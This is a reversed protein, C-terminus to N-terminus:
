PRGGGEAHIRAEFLSVEGFLTAYRGHRRVEGFGADHLMSPILGLANARTRDRGDLTRPLEFALRLLINSSRDFDALYLSGGRRLVRRIERLAAIKEDDLLHHFVFSSLIADYSGDAYPFGGGDYGQFDIGAARKAAKSKAIELVAPDVDLGSVEIDPRSQKVILALTGTGCGFDLLKKIDSALAWEALDRKIRHEPMFARMFPDFFPTLFPVRLAPVFSREM